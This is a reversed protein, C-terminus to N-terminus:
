VADGKRVTGIGTPAGGTAILRKRENEKMAVYTYMSSGLLVLAIGLMGKVTAKNGWIYFAMISQFAAKATGSINHTLPSTAKIQMVTVIGIAFGLLGSVLMGLYFTPTLFKDLHNLIAGGEFFLVLPIFMMTANANNIYTLTWQNDNVAPLVKKTYISNLSVFLSSCVGAVTGILSFNVEGDSGVFFGVFVVALCVLTKNSVSSRLVMYSLVVNFVITLSRAVNYFSVEVYKLCLNNFTVM